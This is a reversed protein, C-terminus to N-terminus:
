AASIQKKIKIVRMRPGQGVVRFWYNEAGDSSTSVHDRKAQEVLRKIEERQGPSLDHAVSIGKFRIDSDKLNKLNSWIGEKVDIDKLGVLLPRPANSSVDRQGLRFLKEIGQDEPKVQFVSDLLETVFAMDGDMRDAASEASVEPVRYIIINKKRKVL